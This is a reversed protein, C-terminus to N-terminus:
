EIDAKLPDIYIDAVRDDEWCIENFPCTKCKVGTKTWRKPRSPLQEADIAQKVDRLWQLMYEVFKRRDETLTISINVLRNTNKSEYILIGKNAKLIYMYILLQILNYAPVRGTAERFMFAEQITTKIEVPVREGDIEVIADVYGRIPPDENKVEEEIIIELSSAELAGQLREHSGTGAMMTAIGAVPIVVNMDKTTFAYYWRRACTGAGYGIASPAFSVKSKSKRKSLEKYGEEIAEVLFDSDFQNKWPWRHENLEAM